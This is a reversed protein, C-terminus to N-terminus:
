QQISITTVFYALVVANAGLSDLLNGNFSQLQHMDFRLIANVPWNIAKATTATPSKYM